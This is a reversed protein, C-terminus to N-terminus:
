KFVEKSSNLITSKNNSLYEIASTLTFLNYLTIKNHGTEILSETNLYVSIAKATDTQNKMIKYLLNNENVKPNGKFFSNKLIRKANPPVLPYINYIMNMIIKGKVSNVSSHFNTYTLDAADRSYSSLLGGFIRHKKKVLDPCNMIYNFFGFSWFPSSNWFYCRHRDEGQFAYKFPKEISRLHVYKQFLDQEPFNLLTLKIEEYIEERTIGTVRTIFEVPMVSNENIVFEVVDNISNFKFPPQDLTYIIKDGNDGTIYVLENKYNKLLQYYFPIIPATALSNMGEKLKLLEHVESGVPTRVPIKDLKVDYIECLKEAIKIEEPAYGNEYVMTAATFPIKNFSMASAVLRSDLGGSLTVINVENGAYRDKCSKSFLDKLEIIMNQKSEDAHKKYDFNFTHLPVLESSGHSYKLLTSPRLHKVNEVLTRERLMYGLLLFSSIAVSDMKHSPFSNVIFSLFRSVILKNDDEFYYLPLRGFADNFVLLDDASNMYVIYEGDTELIWSAMREYFYKSRRVSLLNNLQDKLETMTKNYIKGEIIVDYELINFKEIPYSDYGNLGAFCYKNDLLVKSHYSPLHNLSGLLNSYDFSVETNKKYVISIGPM